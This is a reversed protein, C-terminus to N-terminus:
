HDHDHGDDADVFRPNVPAFLGGPNEEHVWVHLTGLSPHTDVLDAIREEGDSEAPPDSHAADWELAVSDGPELSEDPPHFETWADRTRLEELTLDDPDTREGDGLAFVHTAAEHPYWGESEPLQLDDATGDAFLDPDGDSAGPPIACEVSGLALGEETELYTLMPPKERDPGNEAADALRDPDAFHWGM